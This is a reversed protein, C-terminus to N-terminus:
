QVVHQDLFANWENLTTKPFSKPLEPMQVQSLHVGLKAAVPDQVGIRSGGDAPNSWNQVHELWPEVELRQWLLHIAFTLSALDPSRASGNVLNYVVGINDIFLAASAKKLQAPFSWCLLFVALLEGISIQTARESLM